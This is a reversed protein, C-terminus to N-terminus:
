YGSNKNKKIMKKLVSWVIIKGNIICGKVIWLLKIM